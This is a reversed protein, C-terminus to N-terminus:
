FTLFAHWFLSKGGGGGVVKAEKVASAEQELSQETQLAAKRQDALMAETQLSLATLEANKSVLGDLETQLRQSKAVEAATQQQAAQVDDRLGGLSNELDATKLSFREAEADRAAQKDDCEAQKTSLDSTLRSAELKAEALESQATKMLATHDDTLSQLTRDMEVRASHLLAASEEQAQTVVAKLDNEHAAVLANLADTHQQELDALLTEHHQADNQQTIHAQRLKAEVDANTVNAETLASSLEEARQVSSEM